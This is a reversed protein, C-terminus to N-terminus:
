YAKVPGVRLFYLAFYFRFQNFSEAQQKLDVQTLVKIDIWAIMKASRKTSVSERLWFM